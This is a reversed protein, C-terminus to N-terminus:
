YAGVLERWPDRTVSRRPARAARARATAAASCSGSTLFQLSEALSAEAVDGLEHDLDDVARCDAPIGDFYDGEGRANKGSFAVPYLVKGCFRYGYQGVPKGYTRDGVVTVPMFPRLSNIVLESASASSRTTIVAVRNINLSTVLSPFLYNSDRHSNKDNHVFRVFTERATPAGGIHGGLQQAVSVLGGGNYRLDIVLENAGGARLQAFAEALAPVSPQVFNRFVFYGVKRGEVELIRTDSVTPITVLRKTMSSETEAGALDRFRIVVGVGIESPGFASDLEGRAHLDAVSRGNVALLRHGRRLGGDFAPSGAYVEKVRVELGDGEGLITYGLGIGIFQSDSFFADSAQETTIYSFHEDRPRVRVTDLYAEPSDFLATNPDPLERYWLYVDQLTNRVFLNQGPITCDSQARAAAPVALAALFVVALSHSRAVGHKMRQLM